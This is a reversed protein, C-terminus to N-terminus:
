YFNEDDQPFILKLDENDRYVQVLAAAKYAFLGLMAPVLQFDFFDNTSYQHFLAWLGFIAGPIVLRPSSLAMGSGRIIREFSDQLDQSRIGIKKIKKQRFIKPVDDRSINDSHQCLLQLYLCSFAVGAAYSVAAQLSFVILCYGSCAAGIGVTLLLLEKKLSHMYDKILLCGPPIGVFLLINKSTLLWVAEYMLFNLKKRRERDDQLEKLTIRKNVPADNEGMLWEKTAALKLFGGESEDYTVEESPQMSDSEVVSANSTQRWFITNSVRTIFDGNLERDRYFEQLVEEEVNEGVSPPTSLASVIVNPTRPALFPSFSPLFRRRKPPFPSAKCTATFALWHVRGLSAM